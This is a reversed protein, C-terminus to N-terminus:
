SHFNLTNSLRLRRVDFYDTAVVAVTVAVDMDMTKMQAPAIAITEKVVDGEMIIAIM